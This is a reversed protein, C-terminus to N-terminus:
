SAPCLEPGCVSISLWSQRNHSIDFDGAGKGHGARVSLVFAKGQTTRCVHELKNELKVNHESVLRLMNHIFRTHFDCALPCFTIMRQYNYSRDRMGRGGREGAAGPDQRLFPVPWLAGEKIHYIHEQHGWFNEQYRM